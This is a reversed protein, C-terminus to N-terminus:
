QTLGGTQGDIWKLYEDDGGVIPTVVIEAVDQAKHARIHQEIVRVHTSVTRLLLQWQQAEVGVGDHRYISVLPGNVQVVAAYGESVLRHALQYADERSEVTTVVQVYGAM